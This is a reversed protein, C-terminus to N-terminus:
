GCAMEWLLGWRVGGDSVTIESVGLAKVAEILIIAGADIVDSRKEELGFIGLRENYSLTSITDRFGRLVDMTLGAGQVKERSYDVTGRLAAAMSTPTGAVAVVRSHPAAPVTRFEAAAWASLASLERQSPPDSRFFREKGRVVGVNFSHRWSIRGGEGIIIETSGGGVDIVALRGGGFDKVASLYTLQAERDGSIIEVGIGAGAFAALVDSSNLADRMASTGTARVTEAGLSGCDALYLRVAALTDELGGDSIRGTSSVGRGLRTVICRELVPALAGNGADAVTLLTSNTGIDIAALRM